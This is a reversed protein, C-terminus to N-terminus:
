DVARRPQLNTPNQRAPGAPALDVVPQQSYYGHRASVILHRERTTLQIRHYRGDPASRTPIYGISYQNRLEVEIQAYIASIPQRKTVEYSAGGTERAMRELDDKGHEKMGELVAARLPPWAQVPDSFRISYLIINAEQAARIAADISVPDKWAVGDTLLIIAKRGPQRPMVSTSSKQVASYLLTAVEGPVTLRELAAALESRSSTM